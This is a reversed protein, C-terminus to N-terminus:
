TMGNIFSHDITSLTPVEEAQDHHNEVEPQFPPPSSPHFPLPSLPNNPSRSMSTGNSAVQDDHNPTCPVERDERMTDSESDQHDSDTPLSSDSSISAPPRTKSSASLSSQPQTRSPTQCHLEDHNEHVVRIHKTRGAQSRFKRHCGRFTCDLKAERHHINSRRAM